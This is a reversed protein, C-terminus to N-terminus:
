NTNVGFGAPKVLSSRNLGRTGLCTGGTPDQGVEEIVTYVGWLCSQNGPTGCALGGDYVIKVFYTVHVDGCDGEMHNTLWGKSTNSNPDSDLGGRDLFPNGDCSANALWDDSWKMQLNVDGTTAPTTPRTYNEYLGNFMHAQYNYGYKDFGLSIPLNASDTLGGDKIKACQGNTTSATLVFILVAM